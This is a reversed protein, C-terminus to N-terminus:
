AGRSTHDSSSTGRRGPRRAAASPSSSARSAERECATPRASLTTAGVGGPPPAPLRVPAGRPVIVVWDPQVAPEAPPASLEILLESTPALGAVTAPEGPRWTTFLDPTTVEILDLFTVAQDGGAPYGDLTTAVSTTDAVISYTTIPRTVESPAMWSAEYRFRTNADDAEVFGSEGLFWGRQVLSQVVFFGAGREHMAHPATPIPFTGTATHIPQADVALDIDLTVESTTAPISFLRGTTIVANRGARAGIPM